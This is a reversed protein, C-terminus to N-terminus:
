PLFNQFAESLVNPVSAQFTVKKFNAMKIITALLECSNPILRETLWSFSGKKM